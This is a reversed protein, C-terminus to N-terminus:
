MKATQKANVVISTANMEDFNMVILGISQIGTSM